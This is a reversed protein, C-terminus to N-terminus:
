DLSYMTMLSAKTGSAGMRAEIKLNNKFRYNFVLSTPTDYTGGVLVIRSSPSDTNVIVQNDITLKIKIGEGDDNNRILCSSLFGSGTVSLLNTFSTSSFDTYIASKPTLKNFNGQENSLKRLYRFLTNTGGSSPSAPGIRNDVLNKIKGHLSGTASAADGKQGISEDLPVDMNSNIKKVKAWSM